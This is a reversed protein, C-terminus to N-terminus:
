RPLTYCILVRVDLVTLILIAAVLSDSIGESGYNLRERVSQLAKGKYADLILQVSRHKQRAAYVHRGFYLSVDLMTPDPLFRAWDSQVVAFATDSEPVDTVLHLKEM